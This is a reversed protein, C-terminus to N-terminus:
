GKFLDFLCLLIDVELSRRAVDVLTGCAGRVLGSVGGSEDLDLLGFVLICLVRVGRCLSIAALWRVWTLLM